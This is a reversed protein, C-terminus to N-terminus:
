VFNYSMEEVEGAIGDAFDVISETFSSTDTNDPTVSNLFSIADRNQASGSSVIDNLYEGSNRDFEDNIIITIVEYLM